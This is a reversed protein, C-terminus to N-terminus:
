MGIIRIVFVEELFPMTPVHIVIVRSLFTVSMLVSISCSIRSFIPLLFEHLAKSIFQSCNICFLNCVVKLFPLKNLFHPLFIQLLIYRYSSWQPLHWIISLLCTPIQINIFIKIKIPM